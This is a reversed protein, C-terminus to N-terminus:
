YTPTAVFIIYNEYDGAAQSASINLKYTVTAVRNRSVMNRSMITASQTSSFPRYYTSNLFDSSIDDGSLNYGFGYKTNNTWPKAEIESCTSGNENCSTKPITATDALTRLLGSASATVQYGGAGGSSVSLNNTLTSPVGPTLTGFDISLDSITFSFPIQPFIYWFGAKVRFGTSSYLGPATQGGTLGVKKTESAPFGAGMNLNGMQIQFNDSSVNEAHAKFNFILFFFAFICILFFFNKIKLIYKQYKLNSIQYQESM